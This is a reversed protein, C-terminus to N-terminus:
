WRAIAAELTGAVAIPLLPSTRPRVVLLACTAIAIAGEAITHVSGHFLAVGAAAIAGVVAPAVAAMFGRVVPSARFAALSRAAVISLAFPPGFMGLTAGAAGALGAIRYGIFTSSIAVPGPTIQGLVIADKFADETLWGRVHVVENEIPSIMAVGGGFTAVGIRAFVFLISLSLPVAFAFATPLAVLAGHLSMPPIDDDPKADGPPPPPPRLWIAGILGAIAFVELLNLVGAVLIAAAGAAILWAHRRVLAQRGMEIAVAAIVGVTAAGM